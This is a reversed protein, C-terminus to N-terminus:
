RIKKWLSVGSSDVAISLFDILQTLDSGKNSEPAVVLTNVINSIENYHGYGYKFQDHLPEHILDRIANHENSSFFASASLNITPAWALYLGHLNFSDGEVITWDDIEGYTQMSYQIADALRAWKEPFQKSGLTPHSAYLGGTSSGSSGSVNVTGGLWPYQFDLGSMGNSFLHNGVLLLSQMIRQYYNFLRKEHAFQRYYGAVFSITSRAINESVNKFAWASAEQLAGTSIRQLLYFIAKGSPDVAGIPDGHM